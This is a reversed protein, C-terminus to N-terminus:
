DEAEAWFGGFRLLTQRDEIFNCFTSIDHIREDSLLVTDVQPLM